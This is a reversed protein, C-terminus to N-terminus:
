VIKPATEAKFHERAIDVANEMSFGKLNCYHYLNTVMDVVNSRDDWEDSGTMTKLAKGASQARECNKSKM